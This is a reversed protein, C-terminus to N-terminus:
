AAIAVAIPLMLYLFALTAYITLGDARPRKM